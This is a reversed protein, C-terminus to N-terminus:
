VWYQILTKQWWIIDSVTFLITDVELFMEPFDESEMHFGCWSPNSPDVELGNGELVMSELSRAFSARPNVELLPLSIKSLDM